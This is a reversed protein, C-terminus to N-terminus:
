TVRPTQLPFAAVLAESISRVVAHHVRNTQAWAAWGLQDENPKGTKSKVELWVYGPLVARGSPPVIVLLDPTGKPACHVHHRHEGGKVVELIGSQIRVVRAGKATLAQQIAKSLSTEESKRKKRTPM